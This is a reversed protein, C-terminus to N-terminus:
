KREFNKAINNTAAFPTPDVDTATAESKEGEIASPCRLPDAFDIASLIFLSSADATSATAVDNSDFSSVSRM